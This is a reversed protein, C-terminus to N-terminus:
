NDFLLSCELQSIEKILKEKEISLEKIKNYDIDYFGENDRKNYTEDIAKYIDNLTSYLASLIACPKFLHHAETMLGLNYAKLPSM